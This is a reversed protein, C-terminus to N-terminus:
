EAIVGVLNEVENQLAIDEAFEQEYDVDYLIGFTFYYPEDFLDNDVLSILIKNRDDLRNENIVDEETLLDLADEDNEEAESHITDVGIIEYTFGEELALNSISGLPFWQPDRAQLQVIEKSWDYVQRYNLDIDLIFNSLETYPAFEGLRTLDIISEGPEGSIIKIPMYAELVIKKKAMRTKIDEIKYEMGVGEQAFYAVIDDMCTPLRYRIAEALQKELTRINPMQVKEEYFYYPIHAGLYQESVPAPLYYGGQMGTSFVADQLTKELCYNVQSKLPAKLKEVDFSERGEPGGKISSLFIMLATIAVVFIGIIIFSTIQGRKEM